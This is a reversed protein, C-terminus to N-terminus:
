RRTDEDRGIPRGLDTLMQPPAKADVVDLARVAKKLLLRDM